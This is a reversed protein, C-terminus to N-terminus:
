YNSYYVVDTPLESKPVIKDAGLSAVGDAAGKQSTPIFNLSPKNLLDDYNGTKSIKHLAITGKLTENANTTQSTSYTSNIVPKNALDNYNTTGGSEGGSGPLPEIYIDSFNNLPARVRVIDGVNLAGSYSLKYIVNNIQVKYIGVEIEEVIKARYTKDYKLTEMKPEVIISQLTILFTFYNGEVSIVNAGTAGLPIPVLIRGVNDTTATVKGSIVNNTTFEEYIENANKIFIQPEVYPQFTTAKSGQEIQIKLIGDYIKM